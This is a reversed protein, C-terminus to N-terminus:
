RVCFVRQAGPTHTARYSGSCSLPSSGLRFSGVRGYMGLPVNFNARSRWLGAFIRYISSSLFRYLSSSTHALGCASLLVKVGWPQLKFMREDSTTFFNRPSKDAHRLSHCWRAGFGPVTFVQNESRSRFLGGTGHPTSYSMSPQPTTTPHLM